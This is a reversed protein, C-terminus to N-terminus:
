INIETESYVGVNLLFGFAILMTMMITGGYSLLPLPAGVVPLLGMVMGINVFVHFFLMSTIGVAILKGYHSKATSAIFLGYFIILGYISILLAGGVFGFEEAIMTFIFDTQKEPLFNLHSQTGKLYGKGTLGGSGIAIKSQLINYGAGMPDSDPNIFTEVRRKQYDHLGMWILPISSIVAVIVVVFKWWSVGTAFFVVFAILLLILTTGLDPQKLVMLAPISVILLGPIVYLLRKTSQYNISNFYNALAFVIAIKMLESPQVNLPGIKLWRTAGMATTGMFETLILMTLVAFYFLYSVKHWFKIDIIAIVLMVPFFIVFRIIQKFAWPKLNADAASYLASFGILSMILILLILAWNLSLLRYYISKKRQM